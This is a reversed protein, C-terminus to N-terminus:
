KECTKIFKNNVWEYSCTNKNTVILASGTKQAKPRFEPAPAPTAKGMSAIASGISSVAITALGGWFMLNCSVIVMIALLIGKTITWATVKKSM